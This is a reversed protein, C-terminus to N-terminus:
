VVKLDLWFAAPYQNPIVHMGVRFLCVLAGQMAARRHYLPRFQCGGDKNAIASACLLAASICVAQFFNWTIDCWM